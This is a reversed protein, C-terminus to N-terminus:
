NVGGDQRQYKGTAISDNNECYYYYMYSGLWDKKLEERMKDKNGKHPIAARLFAQLEGTVMKNISFM